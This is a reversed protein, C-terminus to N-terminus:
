YGEQAVNLSERMVSVVENKKKPKTFEAYGYGSFTNNIYIAAEKPEVTVKIIKVKKDAYAENAFIFVFLFLM